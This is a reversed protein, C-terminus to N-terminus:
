PGHGNTTGGGGTGDLAIPSGMALRVMSIQHVLHWTDGPAVTWECFYIRGFNPIYYSRSPSSAITERVQQDMRQDPDKGALYAERQDASYNFPAPMSPFMPMGNMMVNEFVCEMPLVRARQDGPSWKANYVSVMGLKIRGASFSVDGELHLDKIEAQVETRFIGGKEPQAHVSCTCGGHSLVGPVSFAPHTVTHPQASPQLNSGGCGGHNVMPIHSPKMIRGNLGHATGHYVYTIPM